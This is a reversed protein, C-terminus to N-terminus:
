FVFFFFLFELYFKDLNKSFNPSIDFSEKYIKFLIHSVELFIKLVSYSIIPINGIGTIKVIKSQLLFRIDIKLIFNAYTVQLTKENKIKDFSKVHVTINLYPHIM